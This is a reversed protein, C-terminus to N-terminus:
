RAAARNCRDPAVKDITEFVRRMAPSQGIMEAFRGSDLNMQEVLRDYARRLLQKEM